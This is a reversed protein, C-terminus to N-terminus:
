FSYQHVILSFSKNKSEIVYIWYPLTNQQKLDDPENFEEHLSRNVKHKQNQIIHYNTSVNMESNININIHTKSSPRSTLKGVDFESIDKDLINNGYFYGRRSMTNNTQVKRKNKNKLSKALSAISGFEVQKSKDPVNVNNFRELSENSKNVGPRIAYPSKGHSTKIKKEIKRQFNDPRRILFNINM